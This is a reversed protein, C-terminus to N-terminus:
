VEDRLLKIRKILEYNKSRVNVEKGCDLRVTHREVNKPGQGKLVGERGNLHAASHLGVLQVYVAAPRECRKLTFDNNRRLVEAAYDDATITMLVESRVLPLRINFGHMSLGGLAPGTTNPDVCTYLLFQRDIHFDSKARYTRATKLVNEPITGGHVDWQTRPIIQVNPISYPASSLKILPMDNRHKWALFNVKDELGPVYLKPRQVLAFNQSRVGVEKGGELRVTFRDSSSPEQGKRVGEQGNLHATDRLGTLRVYVAFPEFRDLKQRSVEAAYDNATLTMLASSHSYPMLSHFRYPKIGGFSAGEGLITIEVNFCVLYVEDVSFDSRAFQARADLAFIPIETGATVSGVTSHIRADDWVRRPVASVTPVSDANFSQTSVMLLPSEFRYKWALFEVKVRLSENRDWWMDLDRQLQSANKKASGSACHELRALTAARSAGLRKCALKHDPWDESQCIVSCYKASLCKSCSQLKAGAIPLKKCKACTTLTYPPPENTAPAM